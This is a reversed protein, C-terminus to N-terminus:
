GDTLVKGGAAVTGGTMRARPFRQMRCSRKIMRTSHSHGTALATGTMSICGQYATCCIRMIGTGATM